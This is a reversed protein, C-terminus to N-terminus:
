RKPATTAGSGAGTSATARVTGNDCGAKFESLSLKGDKDADVSAFSAVYPKAQTETVSGAKTADLRDWLTQCDAATM